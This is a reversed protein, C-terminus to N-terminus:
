QKELPLQKRLDAGESFNVFNYQLELDSDGYINDTQPM